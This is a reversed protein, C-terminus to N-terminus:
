NMSIFKEEIDLKKLLAYSMVNEDSMSQGVLYLSIVDKLEKYLREIRPEMRIEIKAM